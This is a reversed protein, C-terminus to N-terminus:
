CIGCWQGRGAEVAQAHPPWSPRPLSWHNVGTGQNNPRMREMRKLAVEPLIVTAALLGVAAASVFIRQALTARRWVQSISWIALPLLIVLCFIHFVLMVIAEELWGEKGPPWVHLMRWLYFGASGAAVVAPLFLAKGIVKM